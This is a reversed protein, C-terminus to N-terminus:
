EDGSPPNSPPVLGTLLWVRAAEEYAERHSPHAKLWKSLEKLDAPNMTGHTRMVWEVAKRWVQDQWQPDTM